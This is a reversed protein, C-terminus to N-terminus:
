HLVFFAIVLLVVMSPALISLMRIDGRLYDYNITLVPARRAAVPRRAAVAPSPRAPAPATSTRGVRPQTAGVLLEEQEVPTSGPAVAPRSSPQRTRARPKPATRGHVKKPLHFGELQAPTHAAVLLPRRLHEPKAAATNYM